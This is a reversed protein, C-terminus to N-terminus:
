YKSGNVLSLQFHMRDRKNVLPAWTRDSTAKRMRYTLRIIESKFFKKASAKQELSMKLVNRENITKM